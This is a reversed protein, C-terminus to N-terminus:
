NAAIYIPLLNVVPLRLSSENFRMKRGNLQLM